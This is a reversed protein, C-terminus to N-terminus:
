QSNIGDKKNLIQRWLYVLQELLKVVTQKTNKIYDDHRAQRKALAQQLYPAITKISDTNEKHRIYLWPKEGGHTCGSDWSNVKLIPNINIGLETAILADLAHHREHYLTGFNNANNKKDWRCYQVHYNHYVNSYNTGWIGKEKKIGHKKKFQEFLEGSSRWNDEHIFLMVFDTGDKSYSNYVRDTLEKLFDRTPRADGDFDPEVPYESFDHNIVWYLPTIGAFTQWFWTDEQKWTEFDKTPISLDKYIVHRM